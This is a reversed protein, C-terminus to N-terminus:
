ESRLSEVPNMMAAKVAQLSITAFSIIIALLGASAFMWWKIEIRYAFDQLWIDMLYWAVPSAMLISIGVLFLFDRSLLAVIGPVSAGLVKRIGIEKIRQGAFLAILGFMGMCAILITLLAVYNTVKLLGDFFKYQGNVRDSIFEYSFASRSPMSRFAQETQIMVQKQYDPDTRISLYRNDLSAKGTYQQILPEIKKEANLYHFDEMVGVVTYTTPDGQAKIQKGAATTWGLAKMASRNILMSSEESASLNDDFNRGEVIPIQYTDVYGADAGAQRMSVKKNTVPDYYENFNNDYATPIVSNTSVARVHPNKRLDNLISEFRVKASERDIFSLGIKAVVVDKDNFGPSVGKMYSVQRNLIITVCILTIALAFQLTIFINRVMKSSGNGSTIKNKVTDTVKLAVLKWSPLSAAVVSFLIAISAYFIILPYGTQLDTEIEGFKDRVLDNMLPLFLLFFIASALFLSILVIMGNEICFQVIIRGKSSGLIQRVGVEKARSYMAAANLNILNVLIILLIFIGAIVAGKIIVKVLDANEDTIRSFPAAYVKDNKREKAYNLKVIDSIKRDLAEPVSGERLRLYNETFSNYWDASSKFGQNDELLATTLLINPKITSNSPIHKLVGTVTLQLSDDASIIEGVPDKSGFIKEATEESLVISFKDKLAVAPNGYKFPFQFVSFYATDVFETEDQFDKGNYKLWPWYWSQIHTAAEVEPASKIIEGLLPYTTQMDDGTKLYYMQDIDKQISDTSIYQYVLVSLAMISALGLSLGTINVITFLKNKLLQRYATKLNTQLM